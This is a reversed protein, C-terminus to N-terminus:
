FGETVRLLKSSAINPSISFPFNANGGIANKIIKLRPGIDDNTITCVANEGVHVQGTCGVYTAGYGPPGSETVNFSGQSLTVTTGGENGGFSSSSVNTGGVLMTFNSALATGGSNNIVHKIVTLKPQVDKNTITCTKTENFNLTGTCGNESEKEYGYSSDETATFSAGGDMMVTTGSKLIDNSNIANGNLDLVQTGSVHFNFDGPQANGSFNNHVVKTLLLTPKHKNTFTCVVDQQFTTDINFTVSGATPANVPLTQNVTFVSVPPSGVSTCAISTLGWKFNGPGALTETITFAGNVAILSCTTSSGNAALAFSTDCTAGQPQTLTFPFLTNADVPNGVKIVQLRGSYANALLKMSRDQNGLTSSSNATNDHFDNNVASGLRMHYGSGPINVATFGVGWDSHTSIHGGWALLTSTSSATFTVLLSTSSDSSYAGSSYSGQSVTFGSTGTITGGWMM